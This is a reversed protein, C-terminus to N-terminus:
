FNVNITFIRKKEFKTWFGHCKFYEWGESDKVTEWDGGFKKSKKWRRDSSDIQETYVEWDLFDAGYQETCCKIEELLNAVKM